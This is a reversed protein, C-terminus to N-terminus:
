EESLAPVRHRSGVPVVLPTGSVPDEVVRADLGFV